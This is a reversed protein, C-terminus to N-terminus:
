RAGSGIVPGNPSPAARAEALMLNGLQFRTFGFPGQRLRAAGSVARLGAAATFGRLTRAVRRLASREFCPDLAALEFGASQLALALGRRSFVFLHQPPDYWQVFGPLLRDLWDDGAGSDLLLWGGPRLSARIARLTGVPDPLHEITAWFTVADFPGLVPGLAEVRGCAVPLGARRAAEIASASLDIGFADLGADLCARVFHGKGCGVDLVRGGRAGLRAAVRALKAPFDAAMRAEFQEYGGGAELERHFRAYFAALFESSPMPEVFATACAECRYMRHDGAAFAPLAAAACIPCRTVAAVRL